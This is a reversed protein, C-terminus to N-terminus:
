PITMSPFSFSSSYHSWHRRVCKNCDSNSAYAVCSLGCCLCRLCRLCCVIADILVVTHRQMGKPPVPSGHHIRPCLCPVSTSPTGPLSLFVRKRHLHIAPVSPVCCSHTSLCVWGFCGVCPESAAAPHAVAAAAVAVVLVVIPTAAPAAAPSDVAFHLLM